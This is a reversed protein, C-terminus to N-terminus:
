LGSVSDKISRATSCAQRSSLRRPSTTSALAARLLSVVVMTASAETPSVSEALSLRNAKFAELAMLSYTLSIETGILTPEAALNRAVAQRLRHAANSHHDQLLARNTEWSEVPNVFDFVIAVAALHQNLAAFRTDEGAVAIIPAVTIVRDDAGSGVEAASQCNDITLGNHLITLTGGVELRKAGGHSPFGVVDDEIRKIQEM